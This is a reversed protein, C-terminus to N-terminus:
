LMRAALAVIMPAIVVAMSRLASTRAFASPLHWHVREGHWPFASRQPSGSSSLWAVFVTVEYHAKADPSLVPNRQLANAAFAANGRLAL